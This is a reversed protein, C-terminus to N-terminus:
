PYGRLAPSYPQLPLNILNRRAPDRASDWLTITFGTSLEGSRSNEYSDYVQM